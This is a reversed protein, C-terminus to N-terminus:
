SKTPLVLTFTSGEGTASRVDVTGGHAEAISRAIFLGLGTGARGPGGKGRGFKEFIVGHEDRPIGPGSDRVAVEVRGNLAYVEVDVREGADSWKVANEILNGLVQRLRVRDGRLKPLPRRVNAQIPVEDQGVSASSVAEEALEGIDVDDFRYTFTGAEIRSTDLVDAILDALRSTEDAILALFSARQGPTLERWRQQMTQAAGIVAAM